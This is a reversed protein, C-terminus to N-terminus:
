WVESQQPQDLDVDLDVDLDLAFRRRAKRCHRIRPARVWACSFSGNGPKRNRTTPITIPIATAIPNTGKSEPGHYRGRNRYRNLHDM